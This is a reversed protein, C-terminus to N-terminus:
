VVPVQTLRCERALRGRSIIKFVGTTSTEVLDATEVPGPVVTRTDRFVLTTITQPESSPVLHYVDDLKLVSIVM